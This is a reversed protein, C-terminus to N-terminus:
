SSVPLNAIANRRAQEAFARLLFSLNGDPIQITVQGNLPDFGGIIAVLAAEEFCELTNMIKTQKEL